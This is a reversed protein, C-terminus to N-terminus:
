EVFSATALSEMFQLTEDEKRSVCALNSFKKRHYSDSWCGTLRVLKGSNMAWYCDYGMSDLLEIADQLSSSVWRGVSHYEFELYRVSHTALLNLGGLIVQM